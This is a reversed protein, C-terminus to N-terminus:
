QNEALYKNYEYFKDLLEFLLDKVEKSPTKIARLKDIRDCLRDLNWIIAYRYLYLQM